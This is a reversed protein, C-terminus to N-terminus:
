TSPDDFPLHGCLMAFLVIGCAWTDIATGSYAEGRVM